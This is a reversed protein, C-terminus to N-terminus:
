QASLMRFGVIERNSFGEQCPAMLLRIGLKDAAAILDQMDQGHLFSMLRPELRLRLFYRSGGIYYRKPLGLLLGLGSDMVFGFPVVVVNSLGPIGTDTLCISRGTARAM